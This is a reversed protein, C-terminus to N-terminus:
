PNRRADSVRWDLNVFWEIFHCTTSNGRGPGSGLFWEWPERVFGSWPDMLLVGDTDADLVVVAHAYTQVRWVCALAIRRHLQEHVWDETGAGLWFRPDTAGEPGHNAYVPVGLAQRVFWPRVKGAYECWRRVDEATVKDFGLVRAIYASAYFECDKSGHPQLYPEPWNDVGLNVAQPSSAPASHKGESAREGCPDPM